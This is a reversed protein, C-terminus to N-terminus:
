VPLPDPKWTKVLDYKKNEKYGFIGFLYMSYHPKNFHKEMHSIVDEVTMDKFSGTWNEWRCVDKYLRSGAPLKRVIYHKYIM